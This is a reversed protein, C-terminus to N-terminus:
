WSIQLDDICFRDYGAYDSEDKEYDFKLTHIGATLNITQLTWDSWGNTDDSPATGVSTLGINSDVRLEFYDVDVVGYKEGTGKTYFSFTGAAPMNVRITMVANSSDVNYNNSCMAYSGTKAGIGGNESAAMREWHYTATNGIEFTNDGADEFSWVTGTATCKSNIEIYGEACGCTYTTADIITCVGTSNPDLSCQNPICPSVCASGDWIYGEACGCTYETASTASCEGTSNPDMSCSDCPNVCASGNWLYGDGCENRVCFYDIGTASNKGRGLAMNYIDIWYIYTSNLYSEGSYTIHTSSYLRTGAQNLGFPYSSAPDYMEPDFISALENINALRWGGLSECFDLSAQWDDYNFYWGYVMFWELGTNTDIVVDSYESSEKFYAKTLPTGRVCRVYGYYISSNHSSSPLSFSVTEKNMTWFPGSQTNPFYKEDIAPDYRGYDVISLLENYAPLRWDTHGGYELDSCYAVAYAWSDFQSNPITQQWELGLNNDIVTKESPVTRDISFDKPVCVGLEAYQADQGYFAEGKAPCEIIGNNDVCTNAGTCINGLATKRCRSGSWFYGNECECSYANTDKPECKGTAHSMAMCPDAACPDAVCESGNWFTGENNCGCTYKKSSLPKCTGNSSAVSACPDAACPDTVCETGTWFYGESCMDSRVCRVDLKNSKASTWMYVCAGGVYEEFGYEDNRIYCSTKRVHRGNSSSWTSLGNPDEIPFTSHLGDTASPSYDLLSALERINPLRWDSYGAYYLNECYALAEEWTKGKVSDKQWYLNTASDKVITDGNKSIEEFNNGFQEEDGSVCSVIHEAEPSAIDNSDVEGTTHIFLYGSNNPLHTSTWSYHGTSYYFDNSDNFALTQWEKLSPLRWDSKGAYTRDNLNNCLAEAEAFTYPTLDGEYWELGLNNDVWVADGAVIKRTYDPMICYGLEVMQGDQGYFPEGEAPCTIEQDETENYCKSAYKTCINAYTPKINRCGAKEGYWYYGEACGCSYPMTLNDPHNICTHHEDANAINQCPNFSCPDAAVCEDDHFYYGEECIFNCDTTTASISYKTTIDPLWKKGNWTQTISPVENWLSHAPRGTCEAIRTDAVCIGGEENWTYNEKCKFRCEVTSSETNYVPDAVSPTWDSGTYTQTIESAVNWVAYKPLKEVDCPTTRTQPVCAGNQLTYNDRCKYRCNETTPTEGYLAALSPLWESGSWTQTISEVSNWEANDPLGTCERQRTAPVCSKQDNSVTYNELCKFCCKETSANDCYSATLEPAYATGNYIQTISSVTNYVAHDPLGTCNATKTAGVCATGDWEYNEDCAFYCRTEDATASYTGATPPFWETGNWTQSIASYQNWHAHPKLGTCQQGPKTNAVCLKSNNDWKYQDDEAICHFRCEQANGDSAHIGTTTPYWTTGNWTQEVTEYFWQANAPLGTCAVTQKKAVCESNNWEYNEKCTYRCETESPVNNYESNAAPEWASGNWTQKIQSVTNWLANGPLTGCSVIQTRAICDSGNWEYNLPCKFRCEDAAPNENYTAALGPLWASGSWTQSIKSVTNWVASGPKGTCNQNTITKGICTSTGSDWIYHDTECEFSCGDASVSKHHGTAVPTWGLSDSWTQTVTSNIWQANSPLGVCTATQTGALCKGTGNDYNYNDNCKFHCETATENGFTGINSPSWSGNTFTQTISSVKNWTAHEPLGTCTAIQTAPECNAGNWNYNEKCKFRCYASNSETNYTGVNSPFWESGNWTQTISSYGGTWETNDATTVCNATQTKAVCSTDNWEYNADCTFYCKNEEADTSHSGTASPAWGGNTWTQTISPENWWHANAPLGLCVAPQRDPDCLNNEADWNYHEKCIFRCEEESAEENYKSESSPEWAEGNWTQSIRSVSNWDSYPKKESCQVMRSEPVCVENEADWKYNTACVFRCETSSAIKNYSGVESPYWNDGNYSQSIGFVTNWVANEPLGTCAIYRTTDLLCKAHNWNFGSKCGCTFDYDGATCLGTSNEMNKCPAFSCTDPCEDGFCPDDNRVCIIYKTNTKDAAEIAGGAFDVTWANAASSIDTTSTWFGKAAIAPFDSAAGNAKEYNILSALENRNPLRWDFKDATSVEECYNLAEAWTRSAVPQKQWMLGSENDKVTETEATFHNQVPAYDHIRVCIVSHNETKAVSTLAGTESIRWANGSVKADEKAWFTHGFTTFKDGLAPSATGSNVITLLEAPSPLRWVATSGSIINNIGSCYEDAADWDMANESAKALWEYHTYKDTVITKDGSGSTAFDHETCFGAEMYQADQGFLAEGYAPCVTEETSDFCGTEGTCIRGLSLPYLDCKSGDWKSGKKCSFTCEDKTLGYAPTKAAPLWETGNYKQEFTGNGDNWQANAPLTGCSTTSKSCNNATIYGSCDAACPASGKSNGFGAIESCDKAGGDCGEGADLIRDGCLAAKGCQTKDFTCTAPDCVATMEPYTSAPYITGCPIPESQLPECEEASDVIGNGCANKAVVTISKANDGEYLTLAEVYNYLDEGIALLTYRGSNIKINVKDYTDTGDNFKAAENAVLEMDDNYIQIYVKSPHKATAINVSLELSADASSTLEEDLRIEVSFAAGEPANVSVRKAYYGEAFADVTYAAPALNEISVVGDEPYFVKNGPNLIITPNVSGDIPHGTSDNVFIRISAPVPKSSVGDSDDSAFFEYTRQTTYNKGGIKSNVVITMKGTISGLEDVNENGLLEKLAKEGQALTGPALIMSKEKLDGTPRYYTRTNEQVKEFEHGEINILVKEVNASEAAVKLSIKDTLASLKQIYPRTAMENGDLVSVTHASADFTDTITVANANGDIGDFVLYATELLKENLEEVDAGNYFITGAYKLALYLTRFLDLKEDDSLRTNIPMFYDTFIKNAEAVSVETGGLTVHGADNITYVKNCNQAPTEPNFWACVLQDPNLITSVASFDPGKSSTTIYNAFIMMEKKTAIYRDPSISNGFAAAKAKATYDAPVNGNYTLPIMSPDFMEALTSSRNYSTTATYLAAIASRLELGNRVAAVENNERRASMRNYFESVFFLNEFLNLNRQFGVPKNILEYLDNGLDGFKECNLYSLLRTKEAGDPKYTGVGLRIFEIPSYGRYFSGDCWRTVLADVPVPLYAADVTFTSYHNTQSIMASSSTGMMIPDGMAAGMIPDGMASGMIPDGMAAGMIPDGMASGMIPDGGSSMMIPDGGASMMIPDGMASGMIPDGGAAQMIPDGMATTMIPDGGAAMMIPDGAASNLVDISGDANTRKASLMIPDGGFVTGLEHVFYMTDGEFVAGEPEFKLRSIQPGGASLVTYSISNVKKGNKKVTTGRPIVGYIGDDIRFSINKSTDSVYVTGGNKREWFLVTASDQSLMAQSGTGLTLRARAVYEGPTSTTFRYTAAEATKNKLTWVIQFNPAVRSSGGEVGFDASDGDTGIVIETKNSFARFGNFFKEFEPADKKADEAIKESLKYTDSEALYTSLLKLGEQIGSLASYDLEGLWEGTGLKAYVRIKTESERLDTCNKDLLYAANTIASINATRDGSGKFCSAFNNAKVCYTKAASIGANFSFNGDADTNSSAIKETKGCEYLAAEIGSVEAGAQYAGSIKHNETAEPDIPTPESDTDPTEPTDTDQPEPEQDAPEEADDSDGDGPEQSVDPDGTEDSDSIGTQDDDTKQKGSSGGCSVAFVTCIIALVVFFRKMEIEVFFWLFSNSDRFMYM